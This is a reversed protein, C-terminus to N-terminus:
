AMSAADSSDTKANNIVFVIQICQIEENEEKISLPNGFYFLKLLKTDFASQFRLQFHFLIYKM